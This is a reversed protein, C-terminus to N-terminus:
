GVQKEVWQWLNWDEEGFHHYVHVLAPSIPQQTRLNVLQESNAAVVFQPDHRDLLLNWQSNLVPHEQLGFQWATAILTGQDRTKWESDKFISMTNQHWATLFDGSSDNFLFVGGNWHQWNTDTVAVGFKRQIASPLHDCTNAIVDEGMATQWLNQQAIYTLGIQEGIRQEINDFDYMVVHGEPDRWEQEEKHFSYTDNLRFVNGCFRFRFATTLKLLINEERRKLLQQLERKKEINSPSDTDYRELTELLLAKQARKAICSCNMAFPSFEQMRRYDAAFIIPAIFQSFITAANSNVAIVDTDLYCYNVGAPLHRHLSTKLYISAQHNDFHAPTRVDIVALHPVNVANRLTDTVVLIPCEPCHHRLSRISLELEIFHPRDGCVAYVFTGPRNM